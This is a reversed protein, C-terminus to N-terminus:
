LKALTKREEDLKEIVGMIYESTKEDERYLYLLADNTYRDKMCLIECIEELSLSHNYLYSVANIRVYWNENTIKDKIIKKVLSEDYCNLGQIALMQEVWFSDEDELIMIFMRKAEDHPYKAFYRMAEYLVGDELTKNKLIDLCLNNVQTGKLRFYQLLNVQMLSTYQYFKDIILNHLINIDGQFQLLGDVFLNGQFFGGREDLKQIVVSMYYPDAFRYAANVANSLVYLSKSNLFLSFSSYFSETLKEKKYDFISVIHAYYAQEYESKKQYAKIHSLIYPRIESKIQEINVSTMELQSILVVMNKTQAIDQTLFKKSSESLGLMPNYNNIETIIRERLKKHGVEIGKIRANKVLLFAINFLLM